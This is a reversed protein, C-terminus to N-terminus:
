GQRIDILVELGPRLSSLREPRTVFGRAWDSRHGDGDGISVAGKDEGPLERKGKPM